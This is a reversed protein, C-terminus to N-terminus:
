DTFVSPGLLVGAASAWAVWRLTPNPPVPPQPLPAPAPKEAGNLPPGEKAPVVFRYGRKPITEIYQFEGSTGGLVKRLLSINQTLGGEEVFSDPWIMKILEDKELVREGSAVLALLTDTPKHTLPIMDDGRFMLSEMPDIRFPGLEYLHKDQSSM